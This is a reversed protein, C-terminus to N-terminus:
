KLWGQRFAIAVAHPVNDAGIREFLRQSINRIYGKAYGMERACDEYTAGEAVKQLIAREQETIEVTM